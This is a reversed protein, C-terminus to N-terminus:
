YNSSKNFEAFISKESVPNSKKKLGKEVEPRTRNYVM